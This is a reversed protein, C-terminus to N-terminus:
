AGFDILDAMLAQEDKQPSAAEVGGDISVEANNEDNDHLESRRFRIQLRRSNSITNVLTDCNGEIGNVACICDGPKVALSPNDVNWRMALGEKVRKVLLEQGDKHSIDLGLKGGQGLVPRDMIVVFYPADADPHEYRVWRNGSNWVLEDGVLEAHRAQGHYQASFKGGGEPVLQATTGECWQLVDGRIVEVRFGPKQKHTWSGDYKGEEGLLALAVRPAVPECEPVKALCRIRGGARRAVAVSIAEGVEGKSHFYEIASLARVRPQWAEGTEAWHLQRALADAVPGPDLVCAYLLSSKSWLAELEDDSPMAHLDPYNECFSAVLEHAEEKQKTSVEAEPRWLDHGGAEDSAEDSFPNILFSAGPVIKDIAEIAATHGDTIRDITAAHRETFEDIAADVSDFAAEVSDFAADITEAAYFPLQSLSGWISWKASSRPCCMECLLWDCRRCDMVQEGKPFKKGCGNCTGAPAVWPQLAHGEPCETVCARTGTSM